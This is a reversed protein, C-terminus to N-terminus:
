ESDEDPIFAVWGVEDGHLWAEYSDRLYQWGRKTIIHIAEEKLVKLIADAGAEYGSTWDSCPQGHKDWMMEDWGSPRNNEWM